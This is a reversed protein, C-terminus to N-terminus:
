ALLVPCNNWPTRIGSSGWFNSTDLIGQKPFKDGKWKEQLYAASKSFVDSQWEDHIQALRAVIIRQHNAHRAAFGAVVLPWSLISHSPSNPPLFQLENVFDEVLRYITLDEEPSSSGLLKRIHIRCALRYLETTIIDHLDRTDSDYGNRAKNCHGSDLDQDLLMLEARATSVEVPIKSALKLALNSTRYIAVFLVQSTGMIHGTRIYEIVSPADFISHAQHLPLKPGLSFSALAFFYCFAEFLFSRLGSNGNSRFIRNQLLFVAANLHPLIRESETFNQTEHVCLLLVALPTYDPLPTDSPSVITMENEIATRLYSITKGYYEAAAYRMELNGRHTKLM